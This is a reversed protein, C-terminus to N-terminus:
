KLRVEILRQLLSRHCLQPDTCAKSCLLTITEGAAVRNALAQIAGTQDKMEELYRKTFAAVSIPPGNKGYYDAHLEKSPGLNKDWADWTELEKKLARPRYRCVLLRFGDDADRPDCWRKTKIKGRAM